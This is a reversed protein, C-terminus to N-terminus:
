KLTIKFLVSMESVRDYKMNWRLDFCIKSTPVRAPDLHVADIGEKTGASFMGYLVLM